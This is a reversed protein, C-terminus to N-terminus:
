PFFRAATTPAATPPAMPPIKPWLFPAASPAAAPAALGNMTSMGGCVLISNVSRVSM